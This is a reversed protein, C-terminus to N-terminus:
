INKLCLHFHNKRFAVLGEDRMRGLEASLASRDVALHDALGQRSFPILFDDCGAEIAASSLYSILKARITRCGLHALRLNQMRNKRALDGVLNRLLVPGVDEISIFRSADLLLITTPMAAEVTVTAPVSDLAFAEAFCSGSKVIHSVSRGGWFDDQCVMVEGYLVLYIDKVLSGATFICEGKGYSCLRAGLRSLLQPLKDMGVEKFLSSRAVVDLYEEM